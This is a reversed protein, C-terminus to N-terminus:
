VDVRRLGSSQLRQKGKMQRGSLAQPDKRRFLAESRRQQEVGGLGCTQLSKEGNRSGGGAARRLRSSLM